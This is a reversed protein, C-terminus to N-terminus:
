AVGSDRKEEQRFGERWGAEGSGQRSPVFRLVLITGRPFVIRHQQTNNPNVLLTNKGSVSHKMLESDRHLNKKKEPLEFNAM